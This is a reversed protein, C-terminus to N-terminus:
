AGQKKHQQILSEVKDLDVFGYGEHINHILIGSETARLGLVLQCTGCVVYINVGQYDIVIGPPVIVIAKYNNEAVSGIHLLVWDSPINKEQEPSHPSAIGLSNTGGCIDCPIPPLVNSVVQELTYQGNQSMKGLKKSVKAFQKRAKAVADMKDIESTPFGIKYLSQRSTMVNTDLKSVPEYGRAINMKSDGM